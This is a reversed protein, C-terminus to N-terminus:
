PNKIAEISILIKVEPKFGKDLAYDVGYDGRNIVTYADAGCVERKAFPHQKCLFETVTLTVPKTVGKLTLQGAVTKLTDGEFGFQDGVFKATPFKKVNFIDEARAHENMKEFGFDISDMLMTVEVKGKKAARDFSLKGESKNIKGRWKSVGGLHDAEFAPYTHSPDITYEAAAVPGAVSALTAVVAFAGLAALTPLPKFVAFKSFHHAPM